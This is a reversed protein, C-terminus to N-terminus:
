HPRKDELLHAEIGDILRDMDQHFDPDPRVTMANRFALPKLTPPLESDKPM